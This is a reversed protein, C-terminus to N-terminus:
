FAFFTFKEGAQFGVLPTSTSAESGTDTEVKQVRIRNSMFDLEDAVKGFM